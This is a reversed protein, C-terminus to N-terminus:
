VGRFINQIDKRNYAIPLHKELMEKHYMNTVQKAYFICYLKLNESRTWTLVNQM